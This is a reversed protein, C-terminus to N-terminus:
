GPPCPISAAPCRTRRCRTRCRWPSDAPRNLLSNLRTRLHRQQVELSSLRDQLRAAEIQVDMLDSHRAKGSRYKILAVAELAGVLELNERLVAASQRLYWYEAYARDVDYFLQRRQNDFRAGAAVAAEAAIGSQLALKGSWPFTQAIGVMEEQPGVRTEVSRIYYAFTLRPDPLTGAPALAEVAAKWRFFAAKLAPNHLAAYSRCAELSISRAFDAEPASALNPSRGEYVSQAAKELDDILMAQRSGACGALLLGAAALLVNLKFCVM